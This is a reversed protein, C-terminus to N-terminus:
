APTGVIHLKLVVEDRILDDAKGKYVIDWDFRKIFFKANATIADAGVDITAPFTVSKTVGHMTLNGTVDYGSSTKAIATSVFTAMPYQAADFFDASQLHGTLRDTDTWISEIPIEIRVRSMAPEGDVYEITGTFEKFGGDHSRTVKSGVFGITSGTEPSIAFTQIGEVGPEPVPMMGAEVAPAPQAPETQEPVPVAEGVRGEAVSDAPNSCSAATLLAPLCLYVALRIHTATM